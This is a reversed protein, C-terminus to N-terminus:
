PEEMAALRPVVFFGNRWVPALQAPPFALPQPRVEDVRWAVEQPGPVFPQLDGDAPASELQGVYDVIRALQEVLPGLESEDVAIEALRAIHLVEDRGIKM